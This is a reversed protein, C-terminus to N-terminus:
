TRGRKDTLAISCEAAGGNAGGGFGGRGGHVKEGPFGGGFCGDGAQGMPLAPAVPNADWRRTPTAQPATTKASNRPVVPFERRLM